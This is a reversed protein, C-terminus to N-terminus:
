WFWESGVSPVSFLGWHIFIGIKSDDYWRPLPRSDISDWNPAYQSAKILQNPKYHDPTLSDVSVFSVFSIALGILFLSCQILTM